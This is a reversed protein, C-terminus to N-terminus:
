RGRRVCGALTCCDVAGFCRELIQLNFTEDLVFYRSLKKWPCKLRCIKPEGCYPYFSGVKNSYFYYHYTCLRDFFRHYFLLQWQYSNRYLFCKSCKEEGCTCYWACTLWCNILIDSYFVNQFSRKEGHAM